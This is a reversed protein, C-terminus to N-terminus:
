TAESKYIQEKGWLCRVGMHKLQKKGEVEQAKCEKLAEERTLNSVKKAVPKEKAGKRETYFGSLTDRKAVTEKQKFIEVGGWVCRVGLKAHAKAFDQCNKLADEKSINKVEANLSEKGNETKYRMLTEKRVPESVGYVVVTGWLCKVGQTPNAAAYEKCKAIAQPKVLDKTESELKEITTIISFIKLTAKPEDKHFIVANQWLCKIGKDKNANYNKRCDTNALQQTVGDISIFVDVKGNVIFSGEYKGIADPKGVPDAVGVEFKYTHKKEADACVLQYLGAQKKSVKGLKFVRNPNKIEKVEGKANTYTWLCEGSGLFALYGEAPVELDISEGEIADVVEDKEFISKDVSAANLTGDSSDNSKGCNQFLALSGLTLIIVAIKFKNM